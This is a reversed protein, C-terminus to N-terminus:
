GTRASVGRVRVVHCAAFVDEMGSESLALRVALRLQADDFAPPLNTVLVREPALGDDEKAPQRV